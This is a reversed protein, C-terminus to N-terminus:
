ASFRWGSSRALAEGDPPAVSPKGADAAAPALGSLDLEAQDGTQYGDVVLIGTTGVIREATSPEVPGVQHLADMGDVHQHAGCALPRRPHDGEDLVLDLDGLADEVM